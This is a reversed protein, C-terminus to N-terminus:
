RGSRFERVADLYFVGLGFRVRLIQLVGGSIHSVYQTTTEQLDVFAFVCLDASNEQRSLHGDPRPM